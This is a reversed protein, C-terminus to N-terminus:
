YHLVYVNYEVVADGSTQNFSYTSAEVYGRAYRFLGSGGIVPMERVKSVVRNRGLITITSGNYKGELLVFNMVMLLGAEEQSAAAYLGQSRGVVKSSLQPELTLPDDMMSVFGFGAVSNKNPSKVIPVVTPNPGSYIDHWYFRFHTLKEKKLRYLNHNITTGFDNDVEAVISTPCSSFLTFIALHFAIIPLLVASAM